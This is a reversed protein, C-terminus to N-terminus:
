AVPGVSEAQDASSERQNEAPNGSAGALNRLVREAIEGSFYRGQHIRWATAQCIGAETAIRYLSEGAAAREQVMERAAQKLAEITSM